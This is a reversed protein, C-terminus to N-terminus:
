QLAARRQSRDPHHVHVCGPFRYAGTRECSSPRGTRRLNEPVLGANIISSKGVGSQGHVVVLHNSMCAMALDAVELDRGRLQRRAEIREYESVEAPVAGRGESDLLPRPGPWPCRNLARFRAQWEALVGATM